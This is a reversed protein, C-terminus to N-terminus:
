EDEPTGENTRIAAYLAEDYHSSIMRLGKKNEREHNGAATMKPKDILSEINERVIDDIITPDLADLEWSEDGHLLNYGDFRSDTLKAPNPPPRYQRIQDMNLALRRVEINDQAFMTLREENDRTMDIGSPDHDGLHFIVIRKGAEIQEALRKGSSYLESQSAYGRCAFFPVRLRICPREVVGVLADKEVWVECYYPQDEWLHEAYNRTQKEIFDAPGEYHPVSLLNRTRDEIADWDIEGALRGDNIISGLRKYEQMTNKILDRSVFQYYLQRLTLVYGKARYEAIIYNANSIIRESSINFRKTIFQEKM